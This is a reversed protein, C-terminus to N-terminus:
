ASHSSTRVSIQNAFWRATSYWGCSNRTSRGPRTVWM